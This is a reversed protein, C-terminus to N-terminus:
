SAEKLEQPQDHLVGIRMITRSQQQDTYARLM